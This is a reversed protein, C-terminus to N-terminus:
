CTIAKMLFPIQPHQKIRITPFLDETFIIQQQYGSSNKSFFVNNILGIFSFGIVAMTWFHQIRLLLQSVLVM